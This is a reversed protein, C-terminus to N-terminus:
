TSQIHSRYAPDSCVVLYNNAKLLAPMSQFAGSGWAKALGAVKGNLDKGWLSNLWDKRAKVDGKLYYLRVRDEPDDQTGVHTVPLVRHQKFFNEFFVTVKATDDAADIWAQAFSENHAWRDMTDFLDPDITSGLTHATGPPLILADLEAATTFTADKAYEFAFEMLLDPATVQRVDLLDRMAELFAPDSGIDCGRIDFTALRVKSRATALTKEFKSERKSDVKALEKVAAAVVDIDQSDTNFAENRFPSGSALLADILQKVLAATGIALNSVVFESASVLVAIQAKSLGVGVGSQNLRDVFMRHSLFAQVPASPVSAETIGFMAALAGHDKSLARAIDKWWPDGSVPEVEAVDPYPKLLAKMLPRVGLKLAQLDEIVTGYMPPYDDFLPFILGGESGHSVLRLREDQKYTRGAAIKKILDAFSSVDTTSLGWAAHFLRASKRFADEGKEAPDANPGRYVILPVFDPLNSPLAVPVALPPVVAPNELATDPLRKADVFLQEGDFFGSAGAASAAAFSEHFEQMTVKKDPQAGAMRKLGTEIVHSGTEASIDGRQVAENTLTSLKNFDRSVQKQMRLDTAREVAKSAALKSAQEGFAQATGLSAALSSAANKQNGELGTVDRFLNSAGIVALAAGLGTPDPAAPANQLNIMPTAFDKASLDPTASQRSDASVPQIATPEGPIPSEEWRWFRTDDIKECSNCQGMVAEAFVGRTPVSLRVAPLPTTPAYLPLLATHNRATPDLRFGPAVPMVLSNGVVAVIRNEVVSAVSRGSAGPAEVGDLLMYRRAADMGFWIARHYYELNEQLHALLRRAVQKDEERPNRLEDRNLPTAIRVSDDAALDNDIRRDRFLFDERHATRYRVSGSRVIARGDVDPHGSLTPSTIEFAFVQARAVRPAFGKARLSVQLPVGAKPRSILTAELAADIKHGGANLVLRCRLDQMMEDIVNPVIISQFLRDREEKVRGFLFTAFAAPAGGLVHLFPELAAWAAPVYEGKENDKPRVWSVVMTLEGELTELDEDAYRREPLDSGEYDHLRRDIADFGGSLKRDRLRPAIASQWRGVKAEDFASMMLPVFLCEAVEAVDHEVRFHRLVEFYEITMAHCHNYNAVVETQVRVSEGQTVSQIVTARQSRLANASQVTRDNLQQLASVALSRNGDQIAGSAGGSAGGAVGMVKSGSTDGSGKGVGGTLAASAGRMSEEVTSNVIELIDRDRNLDAALRESALLEESREASERREWDIVALQKKQAPALPLSYLLDGLSFGDAKWLQRFQVLHGHAITTAQYFTPEEDWDLSNRAGLPARGAVLHKGARILDRADVAASRVSADALAERTPAHAVERLFEPRLALTARNFPTSVPISPPPPIPTATPPPTASVDGPRAIASAMVSAAAPRGKGFLDSLRDFRDAIQDVVETPVHRSVDDPLTLGVIEPDTTRVILTYRYEEITRNPVTFDVCRGGKDSSYAEAADVLASMSPDRPPATPECECPAGSEPASVADNASPVVIIAQLPFSGDAELPIPVQVGPAISVEAFGEQWRGRPYDGSFFGRAATRTALLSVTAAGAKAVARIVIDANEVRTMEPHRLVVGRIKQARGSAPDPNATAVVPPEPPVDIVVPKGLLERGIEKSALVAGNALRARYVIASVIEIEPFEFRFQGKKNVDAHLELPQAPWPPAAADRTARATALFAADISYDSFDRDAGKLQGDTTIM